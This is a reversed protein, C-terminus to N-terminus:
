GIIEPLVRVSTTNKHLLILGGDPKQRIVLWKEPSLGAKGIRVKQALTPKKGHKM